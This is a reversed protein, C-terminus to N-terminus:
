ENLLLNQSAITLGAANQIQLIYTGEAVGTADLNLTQEGQALRGDFLRRIEAGKADILRISVTEAQAGQYALTFNGKSPNPYVRLTPETYLDAKPDRATPQTSIAAIYTKNKSTADAYMGAVWCNYNALCRAIGTSFGWRVGPAGGGATVPGEGVKVRLGSSIGMSNDIHAARIEPYITSGSMLLSMMVSRDGTQAVNSALYPYAIDANPFGIKLNETSLDAQKIRYYRIGADGNSLQANFALHIHNNDLMATQVRCDRTSLSPGNKQVANPPITYSEISITTNNITAGAQQFDDTIVYLYIKNGSNPQVSVFPIGPGGLGALGSSIPTIGFPADPINYWTTYALTQGSYGKSKTISTIVSQNFNGADDYVNGGVYVENTSVGIMPNLLRRGNPVLDGNLAYINWGGSPDATQSFAFLVRSTAVSLGAMATMFFRQKEYDWLVRPDFINDGVNLNAYFSALSKLTPNSGDANYVAFTSNTVSVIKEDESVAISNSNPNWDNYPNGVFETVVSPAVTATRAAFDPSTAQPANRREANARAKAADTEPANVTPYVVPRATSPDFPPLSLVNVTAGLPTTQLGTNQAPASPPLKQAAARISKHLQTAVDQQAYSPLICANWLVSLTAIYALAKCPSNFFKLM